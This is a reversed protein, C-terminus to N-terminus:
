PKPADEWKIVHRTDSVCGVCRDQVVKGSVGM